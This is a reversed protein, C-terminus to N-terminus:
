ARRDSGVGEIRVISLEATKAESATQLLCVSAGSNTRGAPEPHEQGVAETRDASTRAAPQRRAQRREGAIKTPAKPSLGISNLM